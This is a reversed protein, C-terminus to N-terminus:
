VVSKRDLETHVAGRLCDWTEPVVQAQEPHFKAVPSLGHEEMRVYVVVGDQDVAAVGAMTSKLTLNGIVEQTQKIRWGQFSIM